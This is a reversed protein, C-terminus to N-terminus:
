ALIAEAKLQIPNANSELGKDITVVEYEFAQFRQIVVALNILLPCVM